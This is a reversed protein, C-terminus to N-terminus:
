LHINGLPFTVRHRESPSLHGVSVWRDPNDQFSPIQNKHDFRPGHIWGGPVREMTETYDDIGPEWSFVHISLTRNDRDLTFEKAPWTGDGGVYLYDSGKGSNQKEDARARMVRDRLKRASEEHYAFPPLAIIYEEITATAIRSDIRSSTAEFSDNNSYPSPACAALFSILLTLLAFRIRALPNTPPCLPSSKMHFEMTHDSKM